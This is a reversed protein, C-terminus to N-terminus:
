SRNWTNKSASSSGEISRHQNVTYDNIIDKAADEFTVKGIKPVIPIGREVDGERTRLTRRAVTEKTTGTSERVARGNQHYKIWITPLEVIEGSRLRKKRRYLSGM